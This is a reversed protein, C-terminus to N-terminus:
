RADIRVGDREVRARFSEPLEEFRLVDSPLRMREALMVEIRTALAPPAGALVVDVDSREDAGGWALSGILWARVGPALSARVLEIVQDRVDRARRERDRRAQAEREGLLLAASEPTTSM